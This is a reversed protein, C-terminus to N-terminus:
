DKNSGHMLKDAKSKDYEMMKVNLPFFRYWVNKHPYKCIINHRRAVRENEKKLIIWHEYDISKIENTISDLVTGTSVMIQLQLESPPLDLDCDFDWLSATDGHWALIINEEKSLIAKTDDEIPIVQAPLSRGIQQRSNLDWFRATGDLSWTLVRNELKNFKAQLVSGDHILPRDLEKFSIADWVRVAQDDGWTLILNENSNFTAGLVGIDHSLPQGIKDGSNEDWLQAVGFSKGVDVDYIGSKHESCWTLIKTEDSNLIAGGVPGIHPLSVISEGGSSADWIKATRDISWTLIRLDNNYFKAGNISGIYYGILLGSEADWIKVSNEQGGISWTLIRSESENFIAKIYVDDHKLPKHFVHEWTQLDLLNVHSIYTDDSAPFSYLLLVKSEDKNFIVDYIAGDYKLPEFYVQGSNTDWFQLTSELSGFDFPSEAGSWTLIKSHDGIFRAGHVEGNDHKFSRLERGDKVNWLRATSDSSWTLVQTNDHNFAAGYIKGHHKLDISFPEPKRLIWFRLLKDDGWTLVSTGNKNFMAGRVINWHYLPVGLQSGDEADWIRATGDTGWTLIQKENYNFCAGLVGHKTDADSEIHQLSPGIQKGTRSDWLRATYDFGWSLVQTEEKNFIAGNVWGGHNMISGIQQRNKIDWIRVTNDDSWALIQTESHNFDAGMLPGDHNMTSGIQRCTQTDWIRITGDRSSTLIKTEDKNFKADIVWGEHVMSEAIQNGSTTDWLRATNDYSWTLIYRGDRTFKAGEVGSNHKLRPIKRIGTATYWVSATSDSSWTLIYSEDNSFVAGLVYDSHMLPPFLLESNNVDWLKASGDNSWTLIYNEARNFLAGNVIDSHALSKGIQEGTNANWLRATKDGSWSLVRSDDHNFVAGLVPGEHEAINVLHAIPQYKDIDMLISQKVVTDPTIKAARVALHLSRLLDGNERAIRSDSWNKKALQHQASQRLENRKIKQMWVVIISTLIIALVLGSITIRSVKQKFQRKKDRQEILERSIDYINSLLTYWSNNFRGRNVQDQQLDFGVYNIGLPCEMTKLLSEPFCFSKEKVTKVENNPIGKLIIPIIRGMPNVASFRIIEDNVFKSKRASPSCIVILNRSNRLHKEISHFYETGFMDSEDRFINLHERLLRLGKPAKFNELADELSKAFGIDERSYSIFADFRKNAKEINHNM